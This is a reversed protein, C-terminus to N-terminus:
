RNWPKPFAMVKARITRITQRIILRLHYLTLDVFTKIGLFIHITLNKIFSYLLRIYLKWEFIEFIFIALAIAYFVACVLFIGSLDNLTMPKPYTRPMFKKSYEHQFRDIFYFILGSSDAREIQQNFPRVLTSGKKFHFLVLVFALVDRSVTLPKKNPNMQNVIEALKKDAVYVTHDRMSCKEYTPPTFGIIRSIIKLKTYVCTPRVATFIESM